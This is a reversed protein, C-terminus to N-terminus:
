LQWLSWNQGRYALCHRTCLSLGLFGPFRPSTWLPRSFVHSKVSGVKLRQQHYNKISDDIIM